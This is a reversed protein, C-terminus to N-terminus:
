NKEWNSFKFSYMKNRRSSFKITFIYFTCIKIKSANRSFQLIKNQRCMRYNNKVESNGCLVPGWSTLGILEFHNGVKRVLPGGSDGNCTDKRFDWTCITNRYYHGRHNPNREHANQIRKECETGNIVTLWVYNLKTATRKPYLDEAGWGTALVQESDALIGHPNGICIIKTKASFHIENELTILAIDNGYNGEDRHPHVDVGFIRHKIGDETKKNNMGVIM